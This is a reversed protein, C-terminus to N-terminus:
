PPAIKTAVQEYRTGDKEVVLIRVPLFDLKAALWIETREEDNGRMFRLAELQGLPTKIRERGASV